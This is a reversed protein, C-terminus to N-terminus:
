SRTLNLSFEITVATQVSTFGVSPPQIGFDTMDISMTGALQATTGSVRLQMTATVTKTVGHITLQGPVNVTVTQGSAAGDPIAVSSATFTATPFQSVDLSRQVIRDRNTVDYGAVSDVSTLGSLQV